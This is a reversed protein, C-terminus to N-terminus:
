RKRAAAALKALFEPKGIKIGALQMGKDFVGFGEEESWNLLATPSSGAPSVFTTMIPVKYDSKITALDVGMRSLAGYVQGVARKTPAKWLPTEVSVKLQRCRIRVEPKTSFLDELHRRVQWVRSAAVQVHIVMNVIQGNLKVSAERDVHIAFQADMTGMLKDIFDTVELKTLAQKELEERDGWAKPGIFGRIELKPAAEKYNHFSPAPQRGRPGASGTSLSPAVSSTRSLAAVRQQFQNQQEQLRANIRTELAASSDDFMQDFRKEFMKMANEVALEAALDAAKNRLERPGWRM